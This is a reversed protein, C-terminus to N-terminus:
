GTFAGTRNESSQLAKQSPDQKPCQKEEGNKQAKTLPTVTFFYTPVSFFGWLIQTM